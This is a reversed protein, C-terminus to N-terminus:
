GKSWLQDGHEMIEAALEGACIRAFEQTHYMVGDMHAFLQFRSNRLYALAFEVFADLIYDMPSLQENLRSPDQDARISEWVRHSWSGEEGDGPWLRDAEHIVWVAIQRLLEEEGILATIKRGYEDVTPDVQRRLLTASPRRPTLETSILIHPISYALNSGARKGRGFGLWSPSAYLGDQDELIIRAGALLQCAPAMTRVMNAYDRVFSPAEPHEDGAVIEFDPQKIPLTIVETETSVPDNSSGMGNMWYAFAPFTNSSDIQNLLTQM